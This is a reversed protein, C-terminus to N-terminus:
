PRQVLSGRLFRGFSWSGLGSRQKIFERSFGVGRLGDNWALFGVVRRGEAQMKKWFTNEFM